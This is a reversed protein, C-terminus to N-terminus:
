YNPIVDYLISRDVFVQIGTQEMCVPEPGSWSGTSLCQRDNGILDFGEDCVYTATSGEVTSSFMVQGNEPNSLSGCDVIILLPFLIISM